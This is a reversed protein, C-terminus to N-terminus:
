KKRQRTLLRHLKYNYPPLLETLFEGEATYGCYTNFGPRKAAFQILLTVTGVNTSKKTFLHQAKAESEGSKWLLAKLETYLIIPAIGVTIKTM